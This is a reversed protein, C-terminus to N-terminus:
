ASRGLHPFPVSVPENLQPEDQEPERLDDVVHMTPVATEDQRIAAAAWDRRTLAAYLIGISMAAASTTYFMAPFGFRDIIGGLVPASLMAGLEVIGRVITTAFALLGLTGAYNREM